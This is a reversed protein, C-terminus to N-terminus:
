VRPNRVRQNEYETLIRQFATLTHLYRIYIAAAHLAAINANKCADILFNEEVADKHHFNHGYIDSNSLIPIFRTYM